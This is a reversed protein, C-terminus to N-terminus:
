EDAHPDQLVGGSGGLSGDHDGATDTGGDDAVLHLTAEALDVSMLERGQLGSKPKDDRGLWGGSCGGQLAEAHFPQTQCLTERNKGVGRRSGSGGLLVGGHGEKKADRDMEVPPNEGRQEVREAAPGSAAAAKM